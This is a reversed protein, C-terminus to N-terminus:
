TQEPGELENVVAVMMWWYRQLGILARIKILGKITMSRGHAQSAHLTDFDILTRDTKIIVALIEPLGPIRRSTM